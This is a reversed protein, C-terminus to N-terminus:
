VHCDVSTLYWGNEISQEIYKKRYEKWNPQEEIHWEGDPTVIALTIYNAKKEIYAEKTPYLELFKEPNYLMRDFCSEYPEIEKAKRQRMAEFDIDSVLAIDAETRNKLIFKGYWPDGIIYSDFQSNLNEWYGRLGTEEDVDSDEDETFTLYEKPCDGMNNDQYPALLKDIEAETGTKTFVAVTYHSM